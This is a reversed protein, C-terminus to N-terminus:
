LPLPPVLLMSNEGDFISENHDSGKDITEMTIEKKSVFHLLQENGSDLRQDTQLLWPPLGPLM